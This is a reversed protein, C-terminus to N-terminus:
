GVEYIKSSAGECDGARAFHQPVDVRLRDGEHAQYSLRWTGARDTRATGVVVFGTSDGLDELVRVREGAACNVTEALVGGTLTKPQPKYDSIAVTRSIEDLRDDSGFGPTMSTMVASFSVAALLMPARLRHPRNPASDM